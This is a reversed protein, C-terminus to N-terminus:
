VNERRTTGKLRKRKMAAAAAVAICSLLMIASIILSIERSSLRNGKEDERGNRPRSTFPIRERRQGTAGRNVVCEVHGKWDAPVQLTINRSSTFVHDSNTVVTTQTQELITGGSSVDWQLTPAPKGTASCSFVVGEVNDEDSDSSRPQANTKVESVGQVTLCTQQRKSGDPYANFSCIYCSEDDWTVNTLTIATSSLSAETFIVKGQYPENIQQGFRKSYTALNEISEDKFLRQWTVQLVGKPNALACRYHADGGYDATTNGYGTIHSTSAKFLLDTFILIWFMEGWQLVSSM